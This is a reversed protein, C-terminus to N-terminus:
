INPLPYKKKPWLSKWLSPQEATEEEKEKKAAAAALYRARTRHSPHVDGNALHYWIEECVVNNKLINTNRDIWATTPSYNIALDHYTAFQRAMAGLEAATGKKIAYQDARYEALKETTASSIKKACWLAVPYISADVCFDIEKTFMAHIRVNQQTPNDILTINKLDTIAQKVKHPLCAKIAQRLATTTIAIAVAGIASDYHTIHGYEHLIYGKYAEITDTDRTAIAHRIESSPVLIKKQLLTSIAAFGPRDKIDIGSPDIGHEKLTEQVFEITEQDAEGLPLLYARLEAVGLAVAIPIAYPKVTNYTWQAGHLMQSAYSMMGHTHSNCALLTLLILTSIKQTM